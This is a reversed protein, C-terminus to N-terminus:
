MRAEWAICEGILFGRSLKVPYQDEDIDRGPEGEPSGMVFQGPPCWRLTLGAGNDSRSQGAMLGEFRGQGRVTTTLALTLMLSLVRRM